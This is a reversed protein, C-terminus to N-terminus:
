VLSSLMRSHGVLSFQVSSFQVSSFSFKPARKSLPWVMWDTQEEDDVVCKRRLSAPAKGEGVVQVKTHWNMIRRDHRAM